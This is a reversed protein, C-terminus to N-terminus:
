GIATLTALLHLSAVGGGQYFLVYGILAILAVLILLVIWGVPNSMMGAMMAMGGMAMGGGLLAILVILLIAGIVILLVTGADM